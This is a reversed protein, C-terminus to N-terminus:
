PEGPATPQTGSPDSQPVTAPSGPLWDLGYDDGAVLQPTARDGAFTAARVEQKLRDGTLSLLEPHHQVLMRVPQPIGASHLTAELAAADSPNAVAPAVELEIMRAVLDPLVLSRVVGDSLLEGEVSFEGFFRVDRLRLDLFGWGARIRQPTLLSQGVVFFQLRALSLGADAESSALRGRLHRAYSGLAAIAGPSLREKAPDAPNRQTEDAWRFLLLNRSYDGATPSHAANPWELWRADGQQDILRIWFTPEVGPNPAFFRYHSDLYFLQLYPRFINRAEALIQPPGFRGNGSGTVAAFIAAFHIVIIASMIRRVWVAPRRTVQTESTTAATAQVIGDRSQPQGLPIM